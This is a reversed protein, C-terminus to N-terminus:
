VHDKMKCDRFASPIDSYFMKLLEISPLTQYNQFIWAMDLIWKNSPHHLFTKIEVQKLHEILQVLESFSLENIPHSIDM